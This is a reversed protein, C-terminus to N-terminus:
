LNILIQREPYIVDDSQLTSSYKKGGGPGLIKVDGSARAYHVAQNFIERNAITGNCNFEFLQKLTIGNQHKEHAQRALEKSLTQKTAERTVETFSLGNLYASPDFDPKYALMNLGLNGYHISGNSNAWHVDTMAARARAHPALHLLWYGNRQSAPRIYFPSYFKAGSERVIAPALKAEVLYQWDCAGSDKLSLLDDVNVETLGLNSYAQRFSKGDHAYRELWDVAFNIIFEAKGHLERSIFSLTPITVKSYGCQDLFFIARGGERPHRKKIAGLIEALQDEFCGERLFISQGIQPGYGKARLVGDLCGFADPDKEVFWYQADIKTPIRRGVNLHTEAARVAEMMVLPSGEEDEQYIGGGAFGDILTIKGGHSRFTSGYVIRIYLEIYEQLIRLKTRSHDEM